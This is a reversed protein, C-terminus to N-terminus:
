GVGVESGAAEPLPRRLAPEGLVHPTPRRPRLYRKLADRAELTVTFLVPVFVLTFVTSVVLGGLLVAGIGRYLESGAGPSIVLPLLGFLGILATMFIPRIRTRVSELVAAQFPMRDDRIHVLAQEVILIPNNVVTGVLIIFGLMTLVDLTQLVFLNLLALGAFGGVAGLPVSLIIVFPYLWSEFLAAMLLYSILLALLLNWRLAKWTSNLKDATGSLNIRYGGSLQGTEHLPQIIEARIREMAEELPMTLPPSVEITIARQRERRNIQEPGSGLAVHAVAELPVLEGTPTAISLAKLDQTRHAFTQKGIITLDIKDGGLFYDSAYAGDVLADVAYGLDTANVGLDAAQDWKPRVHMEPSSLDLSPRPIAQAGPIVDQVRGMVQGGLGILQKIEPGTIEIDVTRGSTLGQEFLSTQKAVMFMGPISAGAQRMIPVLEGGRLPDKARVGMFLMRGRAVYFFDGIVPFDATGSEAVDPDVDWYPRMTAELEAGIETLKDLNYGPPPLMIGIVLNRNGGPLYEVKPLLLYSIWLSAGILLVIVALQRLLGKQLWANIDVVLRVFRAGFWDIPKLMQKPVYSIGAWLRALTGSTRPVASGSWDSGSAPQGNIGSDLVSVSPARSHTHRFVWSAATPVLILAVLLSLGLASSTALAIDRFLQGAQDQVFLVPIFVALNTVTSSLIAGGVEKTGNVIAALSSEGEQRRRYINELVVIFNDVLMGVAFAIGALSPVNLTRGMLHMMLFMGVISVAIALFIILTSRISRLFILLVLVTLAAGELINDRVLGISSDIYETEDYVQTLQLGRQRLVNENLERNAERLGEMVDLVNTNTERLVNCGVVSTGFRRIVGDPKKYDHKVQAVDRIHIPAGGQRTIIVNEVQEPSRFQGLTRVVYRRKGEWFDGASTDRNHLRLAERVDKITLRRAALLEPNVIVQMEDERGGVVNCNSVGSVREFRAEVVDEMFRRMLTLDIAAPLLEKVRPQLKALNRLRFLALGPNHSRRVKELEAHLDPHRGQFAAIEENTPLRQHLMFWGIPRDSSNSTSIVPLDANEPYERVQQLRANVKILADSMDTGVAFELTIRGFSDMSESSLKTIGEVSQLQEEQELIIEREMEQPSAGPWRTEITLTPITVEPILQIPMRYVSIIGFLMLLIVGVAVKVPNRVFTEIM